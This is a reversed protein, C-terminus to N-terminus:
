GAQASGGTEVVTSTHHGYELTSIKENFPDM